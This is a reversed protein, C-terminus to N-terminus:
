KLTLQIRDGSQTATLVCRHNHLNMALGSPLRGDQWIVGSGDRLELKLQRKPTEWGQPLPPFMLQATGPLTLPAVVTLPGRYAAQPLPASPSRCCSKKTNSDM